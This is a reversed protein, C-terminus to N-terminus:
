AASAPQAANGEDVPEADPGGELEALQALLTRARREVAERTRVLIEHGGAPM